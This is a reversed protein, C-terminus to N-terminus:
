DEAETEFAKRLDRLIDRMRAAPLAAGPEVLLEIGDAVRYRHLPEAHFWRTRMQEAWDAREDRAAWVALASELSAGTRKLEGELERLYEQIADLENGARQMAKILRLRTLHAPEYHAGRGRGKPAPLLGTEVYFRVTRESVGCLDALDRATYRKPDDDSAM